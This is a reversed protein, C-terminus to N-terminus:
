INEINILAWLKRQHARHADDQLVGDVVMDRAANVEAETAFKTASKEVLIGFRGLLGKPKVTRQVHPYEHAYAVYVSETIAYSGLWRPLIRSAKVEESHVDLVAASAIEVPDWDLGMMTAHPNRQVRLDSAGDRHLARRRRGDDHPSPGCVTHVTNVFEATTQLSAHQGRDAELRDEGFVEERRATDAHTHVDTWSNQEYM